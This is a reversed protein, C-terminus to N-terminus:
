SVPADDTSNHTNARVDLVRESPQAIEDIILRRVQEPLALKELEPLETWRQHYDRSLAAADNILDQIGFSVAEDVQALVSRTGRSLGRLIAQERSPTLTAHMVAPILWAFLLMLFGNVAFNSGLYLAPNIGGDVFAAVIRWGIWFMAALPLLLCSARLASYFRREIANGPSILARNLADELVTATAPRQSRFRNIITRKLATVPLSDSQARQNIFDELLIDIRADLPEHLNAMAMSDPLATSSKRFLRYLFSEAQAHKAALQAFSLQMSDQLSTSRNQWYESWGTSLGALVTERDVVALWPDSIAKLANLRSLLGHQHLASIISQRALETLMAQLEVFDDNTQISDTGPNFAQELVRTSCNTRFLAPEDLGANHLQSKFDQIQVDSGKDWHNMIFVWAHEQAHQQLLRWGQDDRYREPSVVYLLVDIHPLWLEVLERNQIEVSDFDPMDVFMIQRYVENSHIATRIRNLPLHEPLKDVSISRHVYVSIDRSTPREASARAVPEGALRNLLSSKGAGTGGFLGVVLPRGTQDFLEHPAALTVRDLEKAADEPLWGSDIAKQSWAKISELQIATLDSM